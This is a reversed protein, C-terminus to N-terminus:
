AGTEVFGAGTSVPPVGIMAGGGGFAAFGEATGAPIAGTEVAVGSLLM